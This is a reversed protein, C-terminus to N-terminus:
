FEVTRQSGSKIIPPSLVHELRVFHQVEVSFIIGLCYFSLLM